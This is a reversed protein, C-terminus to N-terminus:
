AAREVVQDRSVLVSSLLRQTNNISDNCSRAPVCSSAGDGKRRPWLAQGITYFEHCSRSAAKVTCTGNTVTGFSCRHLIDCVRHSIAVFPVNRLCVYVLRECGRLKFYCRQIAM